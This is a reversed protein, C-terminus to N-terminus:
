QTLLECSPSYHVLPLINVSTHFQRIYWINHLLSLAIIGISIWSFVHRWLFVSPGVAFSLDVHALLCATDNHLDVHCAEGCGWVLCQNSPICHRCSSRHHSGAAWTLSRVLKEAGCAKAQKMPNAMLPMIWQLITESYNKGLLWPVHILIFAHMGGERNGM